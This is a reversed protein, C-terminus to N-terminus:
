LNDSRKIKTFKLDKIVKPITELVKEQTLLKTMYEDFCLEGVFLYRKDETVTLVIVPTNFNNLTKLEKLTQFGDLHGRDYINNTIILDYKEDNKIRKIIEVGSKAIKVNMGMSELISVTNSVSSKNYDGVLIDIKKNPKYKDSIEVISCMNQRVERDWEGIKYLTDDEQYGSMMKHYELRERIQKLEYERHKDEIESKKFDQIMFIVLFVTSVGLLILVGIQEM